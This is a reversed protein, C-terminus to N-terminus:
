LFDRLMAVLPLDAAPMPYDAMDAPRVWKLAQGELPRVQGRWVRCLYLPM